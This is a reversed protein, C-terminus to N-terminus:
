SHPAAHGTSEASGSKGEEQDEGSEGRKSGGSLLRSREPFAGAQERHEPLRDKVEPFGSHIWDGVVVSIEARAEVGRTSGPM